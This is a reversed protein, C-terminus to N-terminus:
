NALEESDAAPIVITGGDSIARFFRAGAGNAGDIDYLMWGLDVTEPLVRVMDPDEDAELLQIDAVFEALGLFPPHHFKRRRARRSFMAAHSRATDNPGAAATLAFSATIVYCVDILINARRRGQRDRHDVLVWQRRIPHLVDIQEITWRISPPGHVANFVMRAAHPPIVDYSVLDASFEPRRFCARDGRILLKFAV